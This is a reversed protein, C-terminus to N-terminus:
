AQLKPKLYYYYLTVLVPIAIAFDSIWERLDDFLLATILGACTFIAIMTPWLFIHRLSKNIMFLHTVMM